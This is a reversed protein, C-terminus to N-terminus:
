TVDRREFLLVGAVLAAAAYAAVMFAAGLQSPGGETEQGAAEGAVDLPMFAQVNEILLGLLPQIVVILALLGGLVAATNRVALGLGLGMMAMGVCAVLGGALTGAVTGSEISVDRATLGPIAIIASLAIAVVYLGVAIGLVMLAKAIALRRREPVALLTPTITGFRFEAATASLALVLVFLGIGDGGGVVDSLEESGEAEVVLVVAGIAYLVLALASLGWFLRTTRLKLFEAGVLRSM